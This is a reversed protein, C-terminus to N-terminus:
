RGSEIWSQNPRSTPAPRPHFVALRAAGHWCHKEVPLKAPIPKEGGGSVNGQGATSRDAGFLDKGLEWASPARRKRQRRVIYEALSQRIVASKTEGTEACYRELTKELENGLRLSKPM